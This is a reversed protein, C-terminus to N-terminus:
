PRGTRLVWVEMVVDEFPRLGRGFPKGGFAQMTPIYLKAHSGQKLRKLGADVGPMMYGAGIKMTLTDPRDFGTDINSDFMRGSLSRFHYRISAVGSDGVPPGDGDSILEVYVSSDAEPASIGHSRLYQEIRKPGLERQLSVVREEERLRDAQLLSDNRFVKEVKFYTYWKDTPKLYPPLTTFIKKNMMSDIRQITVVSDGEKLGFDFVELPNYRNGYGPLVMYYLPMRDYTSEIVTDGAKQIYHIKATTGMGAVSDRDNQRIIRYLLGTDTKHYRETCSCVAFLCTLVLGTLSLRPVPIQSSLLMFCHFKTLFYAARIYM